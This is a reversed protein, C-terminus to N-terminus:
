RQFYLYMESGSQDHKRREWEARAKRKIGRELLSSAPYVPLGLLLGLWGKADKRRARFGRVRARLDRLVSAALLKRRIASLEKRAGADRAKSPDTLMLVFAPESQTIWDVAGDHQNSYYEAALRFGAEEALASLQRTSLRRVHGTDEFFFRNEMGANIGDSRLACIRHELSGENGCPLIHLMGSAPKLFGVAQRWVDRLNYVHELVHHSFLFDFKKGMLAEDSPDFFVGGPVRAAAHEVAVASIDTGYVQWGPLAQQLVQTFVGNGCGFDLAEGEAPLGLGRVVEFVRRKKEPPWEDMYGQTYREDYFQQSADESYLQETRM